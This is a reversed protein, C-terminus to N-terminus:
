ARPEHTNVEPHKALEILVEDTTFQECRRAVTVVCRYAVDKWDADAHADVREIAADRAVTALADDLSLQLTSAKSM